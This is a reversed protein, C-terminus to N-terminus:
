LYSCSNVALTNSYRRENRRGTSNKMSYGSLYFAIRHTLKRSSAPDKGITVRLHDVSDRHRSLAPSAALISPSDTASRNISPTTKSSGAIANSQQATISKMLKSVMNLENLLANGPQKEGWGASSWQSASGAAAPKTESAGWGGSNWGSSWTDTSDKAAGWGSLQDVPSQISVESPRATPDSTSTFWSSSHDTDKSRSSTHKRSRSTTAWGPASPPSDGRSSNRRHYDSSRPGKPLPM